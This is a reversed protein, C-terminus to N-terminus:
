IAQAFQNVGEEHEKEKNQPLEIIFTSGLGQGESVAWVRGHHAKAMEGAVYLGLGSGMVNVENANNARTFKNFLKPLTEKSIGIGTDAIKILYTSNTEFKELSIRISGKPTYKMANDIINEIIQKIKGLDGFIKFTENQPSFVSSFTLGSKKITPELEAVIKEVLEKLDFLSFNYKMRGQEIRSVDLYDQVIVVLSQSSDFMKQVADKIAPPAIGFSGELILSGYGKIAALPGRLQHSAVSVFESKQKDAETLRVNVKEIEHVLKEVEERSKVEKVVSKILFIGVIVTIVLLIFNYIQEHLSQALMVQVFLAVWLTFVLIDAILVRVNFLKYKLIAYTISSIMVVIGVQGVWNFTFVGFIPLALNTTIGIGTAIFTGIFIYSIQLKLEPTAVKYKKFLVLYSLGFYSIIYFAYCLHYYLNFVIEKEGNTVLKVTQILGDPLLSLICMVFYLFSLPISSAAIYLIRSALTALAINEFGRFLFMSFGWLSVTLTLVFFGFNTRDNRNRSYIVTGYVTNTVAAILVAINIFDIEFM